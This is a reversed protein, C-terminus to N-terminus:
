IEDRSSSVIINRETLAEIRELTHTQNIQHQLAYLRAFSVIPMMADKLNIEGAHETAGGSLYINGLLRFPTKFLLANQALHHFFAPMDQLSAHIHRRLEHVLETDGYVLRFDFFISLDIIEQPESKLIWEDFGSLWDPLSRCWRPNSAMVQGRCFPYGARNLGDCVRKGLHLFYEKVKELDANTSPVYIIGNDQDTLLTQEMRGQSGMAIFAFAAPPSGLEDVALQILRETAADCISTLMNTVHRPRASSDTLSKVLPSTRECCQAVEDPSKARSIERTLVIPGYRQFQILSNSDIVSVIQGNQDEVALHRVGKEEMRMLAEYILANESIKTLPSSMITHIPTSLEINEALVRARLDHDTVIGIITSVESAVLAATVNRATMLRSLQKIPTDLKCIVVDRGLNAVPEHLFLLSAQLKEILAERGAEFKRDTTVDALLGAIYAPNLHEDRVLRGSLSIFRTPTDSTKVHLIHNKIEVDALLTQLVQEYEAPDSFFDALAPQSAEDESLHPLLSRGKPNIELFVGRRAARARFIGVPVSLAALVLGGNSVSDSQRAIDKALLIFGSKGNFMIPNLTLICEVLSGDIRMLCGELAEGMEPQESKTDRFREWLATNAIERPLLDDPELFELQRLTYGLMNLFTPNAYHCRDDLILLTGETTAEVLTHYRETSDRLSDVVEQRAKEINLSQQLVFILLLIIAGSIILSTNILSQEIRAIEQNVDDIYIGTGIIWGWPVFGKVFSEKPELRQPDDKWQWVYDIYGEGERQVLSVFEVFIHVGRPDSFNLLEQGNLDTRYPHMIMRPSMDQIWFYDKGESGYRLDKIRMVALSQAQERTLIGNQEDRQYSSLISWASNTLERIMERKRELLTEKFSPLIIGWLAALFLAIAFFTPLFIRLVFSRRRFHHAKGTPNDRYAQARTASEVNTSVDANFTPSSFFAGRFKIWQERPMEIKYSHSGPSNSGHFDTGACILLDHKQALSSLSNQESESFSAYIAEIGDLGSSKLAGILTDLQELDSEFILPHAWFARGGARHILAIAESIELYGDPAASVAPFADTDNPHSNGSKRLSKAISHVEQGRVQRLSLLTAELHHYEPDFGYGLLHAERGNFQTTLEVGSLFAIGRKLLAEQFRPLGEITDHDTLAAYGVGASDLNGALIEPSQEGDSFSSHIHFNVLITKEM